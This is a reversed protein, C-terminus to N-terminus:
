FHVVSAEMPYLDCCFADGNAVPVCAHANFLFCVASKGRLDAFLDYLQVM